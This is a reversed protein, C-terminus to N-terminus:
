VKYNNTSKLMARRRWGNNHAALLAVQVQTLASSLSRLVTKSNESTRQELLLSNIESTRAQVQQLVDRAVEANIREQQALVREEAEKDRSAAETKHRLLEYEKNFTHFYDSM